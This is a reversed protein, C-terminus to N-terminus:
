GEQAAQGVGRQQPDQAEMQRFRVVPHETRLVKVLLCLAPKKRSSARNKRAPYSKRVLIVEPLNKEQQFFALCACDPIYSGSLWTTCTLSMVKLPKGQEDGLVVSEVDFGM